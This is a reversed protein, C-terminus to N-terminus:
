CTLLQPKKPDVKFLTRIYEYIATIPNRNIPGLLFLNEINRKSLNTQYHYVRSINGSFGGDSLYQVDTESISPVNTLHRSHYLTGNLWLDVDRNNLAIVVNVWKQLPVNEYVITDPRTSNITPIELYLNNNKAGLYLIVGGKKFIHKETMYRYDWDHVYIWMSHTFSLGQNPESFKIKTSPVTFSRKADEPYEVITKRLSWRKIVILAFVVIVIILLIYLSYTLIKPM